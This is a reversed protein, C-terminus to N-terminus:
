IRTDSIAPKLSSHSRLLFVSLRSLSLYNRTGSSDASSYIVNVKAFM